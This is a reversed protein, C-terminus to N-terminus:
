RVLRATTSYTRGPPSAYMTPTPQGSVGERPPFLLRNPADPDCSGSHVYGERSVSQGDFRLCKDVSSSWPAYKGSPDPVEDGDFEAVGVSRDANHAPSPGGDFSRDTKGQVRKRLDGPGSLREKYGVLPERERQEAVFSEEVLPRDTEIAGEPVEDNLRHVFEMSALRRFGQIRQSLLPGVQQWRLPPALWKDRKPDGGDVDRRIRRNAQEGILAVCEQAM